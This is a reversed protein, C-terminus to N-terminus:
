LADIFADIDADVKLFKPKQQVVLYKRGKDTLKWFDTGMPTVYGTSRMIRLVSTYEKGAPIYHVHTTQNLESMAIALLMEYKSITSMDYIYFSRLGTSLNVGKITTLM